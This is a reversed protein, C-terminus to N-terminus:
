PYLKVTEGTEPDTMTTTAMIPGKSPSKPTALIMPSSEQRKLAVPSIADNKSDEIPKDNTKSNKVNMDSSTQNFKNSIPLKIDDQLPNVVNNLNLSARVPDKKTREPRKVPM